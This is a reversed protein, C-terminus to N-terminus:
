CAGLVNRYGFDNPIHGVRQEEVHFPFIGFLCDNDSILCTPGALRGDNWSADHSRRSLGNRPFRRYM